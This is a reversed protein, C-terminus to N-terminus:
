NSSLNIANTREAPSFDQQFFFELTQALQHRKNREVPSFDQQFFVGPNANKLKFHRSLIFSAEQSSTLIVNLPRPRTSESQSEPRKGPRFAKELEISTNPELMNNIEPLSPPTLASSTPSSPKGRLPLRLSMRRDTIRLPLCPLRGVIENRLAFVVGADRQEAKPRGPPSSIALRYANNDHSSTTTGNIIEDDFADLERLLECFRRRECNKRKELIPYIHKMAESYKHAEIFPPLKKDLIVDM